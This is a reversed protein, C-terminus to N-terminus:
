LFMWSTMFAWDSRTSIMAWNSGLITLIAGAPSFGSSQVKLASPSHHSQADGSRGDGSTLWAGTIKLFDTDQTFVIRGLDSARQLIVDDDARDTGDESCTIVDVGRRRLGLTIEAHVNHDIYLKLGM